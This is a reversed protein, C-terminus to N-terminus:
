YGEGTAAAAHAKALLRIANAVATLVVDWTRANRRATDTTRVHKNATRGWKHQPKPRRAPRPPRRRAATARGTGKAAARRPGPVARSRMETQPAPDLFRKASPSCKHPGEESPHLFLCKLELASLRTHHLIAQRHWPSHIWIGANPSPPPALSRTFGPAPLLSCFVFNGAMSQTSPRPASLVHCVRAVSDYQIAWCAQSKAACARACAGFDVASTDSVIARQAVESHGVQEAHACACACAELQHCCPALVGRAAM